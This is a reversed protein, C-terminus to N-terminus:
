KELPIMTKLPPIGGGELNPKALALFSKNLVDEKWQPVLCGLIMIPAGVLARMAAVTEVLLNAGLDTFVSPAIPMLVDHSAAVAACTFFGMSPGTDMIIWDFPRSDLIHPPAVELAHLDRVFRLEAGPGATIGADSRTLANDSPLLWVRKFQTQRVLASLPRKHTFYDGLHLAVAGPAQSPLIRTINAQADM